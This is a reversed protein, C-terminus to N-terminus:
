VVDPSQVARNIENQQLTVTETKGTFRIWGMPNVPFPVYISWGIM